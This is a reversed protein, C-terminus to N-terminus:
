ESKAPLSMCIISKIDDFLYFQKNIYRFNEPNEIGVITIDAPISFREFDYIFQFSGEIPNILAPEENMTAKIPLYSNVLFGKFTRVKRLKSDSSIAVFDSRLADEQKYLLIYNQMKPYLYYAQSPLLMDFLMALPVQQLM